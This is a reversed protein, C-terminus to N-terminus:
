NNVTELLAEMRTKIQETDGESYDIIIKQFPLNHRNKIHEGIKYSEINYSHCAHLILDIVVDPQFKEIIKDIESLRRCNPTMCSCPIRLYKESIASVPDNSDEETSDLFLKMGSCADLAVVDGGIEEIIKFIRTADGGVPCGTVMVRPALLNKSNSYGNQVRKDLQIIIDKLIPEIDKGTAITALFIIDYLESWGIVPPRMAAYDFIKRMMKNKHNVDKIAEEIKEDTVTRNFTQELFSQVKKIMVTWNEKAEQEAPVQPLDMVFLPKKDSILEFMKKKGDCTTEAIVADSLAYFPCSDTLIFGYSSKILPCLNAPLIVEAAEITANSFACLVAPTIGMAQILELPAYGCYIGVIPNGDDRKSNIYSLARKSPPEGVFEDTFLPYNKTDM